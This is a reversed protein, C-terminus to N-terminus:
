KHPAKLQHGRKEVLARWRSRKNMTKAQKIVNIITYKVSYTLTPRRKCNNAMLKIIYSYASSAPFTFPV